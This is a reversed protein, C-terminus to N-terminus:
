LIETSATAKITKIPLFHHITSLLKKKFDQLTNSLTDPASFSIKPNNTDNNNIKKQPLFKIQAEDLVMEHNAKWTNVYRDKSFYHSWVTFKIFDLM